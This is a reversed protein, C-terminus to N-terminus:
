LYNGSKLVKEGVAPVGDRDPMQLKLCQPARFTAVITFSRLLVPPSQVRGDSFGSACVNSCSLKRRAVFRKAPHFQEMEGGLRAPFHRM